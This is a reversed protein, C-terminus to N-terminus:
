KGICDKEGTFGRIRVLRLVKDSKHGATVVLKGKEEFSVRQDWSWVFGIDNNPWHWWGM